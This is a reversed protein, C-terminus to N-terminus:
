PIGKGCRDQPAGGRFEVIKPVVFLGNAQAASSQKLVIVQPMLPETTSVFWIVVTEDKELNLPLSKLEQELPVRVEGTYSPDHDVFLTHPHTKRSSAVVVLDVFIGPVRVDQANAVKDSLRFVQAIVFGGSNRVAM